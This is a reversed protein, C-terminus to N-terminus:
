LFLLTQSHPIKRFDCLFDPMQFATPIAYTDRLADEDVWIFRASQEGCPIRYFRMHWEIHTFVHKKDAKKAIKEPKVDWSSALSIAQESTLIGVNNPFEWLGALLGKEERKRIAFKENCVLVFVTISEHTRTKAPKKLPIEGTAGNQFAKCISKVPCEGCKPKGGPVCVTAGLEMLGQTFDGSGSKPYIQLLAERIEKKVAPQSIDVALGEIRATVRLVNGDVAPVPADFCISAIAGATYPGVGPLKLIQEYANPFVGDYETMIVRAAKQLNRARSYYGLGQWLKYLQEENAAALAGITPLEALFRKYYPIVAQVRTQQLMMESLWVRYPEKNERWPLDRKNQLYWRIVLKPLTRKM